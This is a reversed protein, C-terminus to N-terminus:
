RKQVLLERMQNKLFCSNLTDFKSFLDKIERNEYIQRSFEASSLPQYELQDEKIIRYRTPPPSSVRDFNFFALLLGKPKLIGISDAIVQQAQELVIYDFLDWCLIAHFSGPSYDLPEFPPPPTKKERKPHPSTPPAPKPPLKLGSIRDDVYVKFGRQILWEINAGSLRGLDLIHPKPIGILIQILRKLNNSPHVQPSPAEGSDGSAERLTKTRASPFYLSPIDM